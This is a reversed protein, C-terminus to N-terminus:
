HLIEKLYQFLQRASKPPKDADQEKEAARILQRLRQRDASHQEVLEAILTERHQNTRDLLQDRWSEHQHFIKNAQKQSAHLKAFAKQAIEAEDPEMFKAIFGIQRKLASRALKRASVVEAMLPESLPLQKLQKIPLEIMEKVFQQIALHERKRQSKSIEPSAWDDESTQDTNLTDGSNNM